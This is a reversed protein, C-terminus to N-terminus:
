VYICIDYTYLYSMTLSHTTLSGFLPKFVALIACTPGYIALPGLEERTFRHLEPMSM